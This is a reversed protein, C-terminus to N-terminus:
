QLNKLLSEDLKEQFYIYQEPQAATLQPYDKNFRILTTQPFEAAIREFPFRIIVPTNFGIGFEMLVLKKGYAKSIFAEYRSRMTQWNDDEVFTDDCRLNVAMAHGNAPDHPVMSTPIRCDHTHAIMQMVKEENYYLHKDEGEADQLYAYDGQTYFLRKPDFGSKMFQADTNTTIVFYDRGDVIKLLEKYLPTGGIRYRTFWIHKAWYAWREEETKFPYFSSSYLDTIGYKEIWPKFERRFDEGDYSLGAATSLGSGAGIIIYDAHDIAQRAKKLREALPKQNANNYSNAFLNIFPMTLIKSFM